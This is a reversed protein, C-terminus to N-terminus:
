FIKVDTETIGKQVCFEKFHAKKSDTAVIYAALPKFNHRIGCMPCGYSIHTSYLTGAPMIESSFQYKCPETSQYVVVTDIASVSPLQDMIEKKPM